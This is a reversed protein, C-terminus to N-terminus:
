TCQHGLSRTAHEHRGLWALAEPIESNWATFTHGGHDLVRVDLSLPARVLAEFQKQVAYGSRGAADASTAVYPSTAPLPLNAPRWNLDNENRLATRAKFIGRTTLDTAPEVSALGTASYGSLTVQAFAVLGLRQGARPGRIRGWLLLCGVPSAIALVITVIPLPTGQLSV